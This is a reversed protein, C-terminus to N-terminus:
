AALRQPAPGIQALERAAAVSVRGRQFWAELSPEMRFASEVRSLSPLYVLERGLGGGRLAREALTLAADLPAALGLALEVIDEFSAGARVQLGAQHRLALEFQREVDFLEARRELLLARGEQEDSGGATGVRLLGLETLRASERPLVHGEVEHVVLRRAARETLLVGPRLLIVGDGVAARSQLDPEFALRVRLDRRKLEAQLQRVLSHPSRLDHSLHQPEDVAGPQDLWAQAWVRAQREAQGKEVPFREAARRRLDATGLADAIAAELELERARAAYLVGWPGAQALREALRELVRRLPGLQSPQLPAHEPSCRLGRQFSHKVRALERATNRPRVRDLLRVEQEARALFQDLAQLEFEGAPGAASSSRFGSPLTGGSM